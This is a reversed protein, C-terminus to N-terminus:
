PIIKEVVTEGTAVDIGEVLVHEVKPLAFTREISQVWMRTIRCYHEGSQAFARPMNNNEPDLKLLFERKPVAVLSLYYEGATESARWKIGYAFASEVYMLEQRDDTKGKARATKVYEPDIKQWYVEIPKDPNLTGDERLVGEYVVVNQNKNREIRFAIEPKNLVEHEVPARPIQEKTDAM